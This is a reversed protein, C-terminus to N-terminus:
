WLICNTKPNSLPNSHTVKAEQFSANTGTHQCQISIWIIMYKNIAQFYNERTWKGGLKKHERTTWSNPSTISGVTPCTAKHQDSARWTTSCASHTSQPPCALHFLWHVSTQTRRTSPQHAWWLSATAGSSTAPVKLLVRIWLHTPGGRAQLGQSLWSTGEQQVPLFTSTSCAAALVLQRAVHWGERSLTTWDLSLGQGIALMHSRKATQLKAAAHQCWSMDMKCSALMLCSTSSARRGSSVKSTIHKWLPAEKCVDQPLPFPFMLHAPPILTM